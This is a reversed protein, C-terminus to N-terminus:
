NTWAQGTNADHQLPTYRFTCVVKRQEEEGDLAITVPVVGTGAVEELLSAVSHSLLAKVEPDPIVFVTNNNTLIAFVVQIVIWTLRAGTCDVRVAATEQEQVPTGDRGRSGSSGNDSTCSFYRILCSNKMDLMFYDISEIYKVAYRVGACM